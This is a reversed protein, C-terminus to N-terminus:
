FHVMTVIRPTERLWFVIHVLLEKITWASAISKQRFDAEYLTALLALFDRRTEELEAQITEQLSSSQPSFSHNDSM